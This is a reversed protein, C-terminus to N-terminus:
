SARMEHKVDSVKASLAHVRNKVLLYQVSGPGGAYSGGRLAGPEIKQHIVNRM